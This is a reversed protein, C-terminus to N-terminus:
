SVCYNWGYKASISFLSPQKLFIVFAQIYAYYAYVNCHLCLIRKCPLVPIIYTYFLFSSLIPVRIQIAHLLANAIINSNNTSLNCILYMIRVSFTLFFTSFCAFLIHCVSLSINRVFNSALFCHLFEFITSFCDSYESSNISDQRIFFEYLNNM